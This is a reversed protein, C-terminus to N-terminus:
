SDENSGFGVLRWQMLTFLAVTSFMVVSIAAGFGLRFLSFSNSYMYMGIVETVNGPGGRTLVLVQDFTLFSDIVGLIILMITTGRLLPVTLYWFRQLANAGDVEASEYVEAPLSQLAALYLILNFGLRRWVGLTMVTPLAWTLDALWNLTPLHLFRLVVNVYGFGPNFLLIWVIAAAVTPTVIPLFYLSRWFSTFILYRNNLVVALFLGLVISAATVVATYEFTVRMSNWFRSSSFLEVYNGFAIFTKVPVLNDWKFM